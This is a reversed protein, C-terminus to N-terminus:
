GLTQLTQLYGQKESPVSHNKVYKSQSTSLFMRGTHLFFKQYWLGAPPVSPSAAVCRVAGPLFPGPSPLLQLLLWDRLPFLAPILVQERHVHDPLLLTATKLM